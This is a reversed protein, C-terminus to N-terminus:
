PGGNAAGASPWPREDLFNWAGYGHGVLERQGMWKDFSAAARKLPKWSLQYDVASAM